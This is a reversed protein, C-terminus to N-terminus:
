NEQWPIAWSRSSRSEQCTVQRKLCGTESWFLRSVARGELNLRLMPGRQFSCICFCQPLAWFKGCTKRPESSLASEQQHLLVERWHEQRRRQGQVVSEGM